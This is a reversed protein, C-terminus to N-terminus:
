VAPLQAVASRREGAQLEDRKHQIAGRLTIRDQTLPAQEGGVEVGALNTHHSDGRPVKRDVDLPVVDEHAKVLALPREAPNDAPSIPTKARRLRRIEDEAIRYASHEAVAQKNSISTQIVISQPKPEEGRPHPM